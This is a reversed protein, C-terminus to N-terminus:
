TTSINFTTSFYCWCSYLIKTRDWNTSNLQLLWLLLILGLLLTSLQILQLDSGINELWPHIFAFLWRSLWLVWDVGIKIGDHAALLLQLWIIRLFKLTHLQPCTSRLFEWITTFHYLLTYHFSTLLIILWHRITQIWRLRFKLQHFSTVRINSGFLNNYM